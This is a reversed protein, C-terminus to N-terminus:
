RILFKFNSFYILFNKRLIKKLISLSSIKYIDNVWEGGCTENGVPCAMNCLNQDALGYNNFNNGCRCQFKYQVGAYKFNYKSCLEICREPSNVHSNDFYVGDLDRIFM